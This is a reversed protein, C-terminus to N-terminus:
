LISYFGALWFGAITLFWGPVISLLINALGTRIKGNELLEVTQVMWGSFTTYSGTFGFALFVMAEEHLFGASVWGGLLGVLLSGSLNVILIGAPFSGQLWLNVLRDAGYRLCAGMAGALALLLYFTLGTATM